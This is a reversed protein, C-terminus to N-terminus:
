PCSSSFGTLAGLRPMYVATRYLTSAPIISQTTIPSYRYYMEAILVEEGSIMTFGAPLTANAGNATGVQSTATLTGGGCYQWNVRPNATGTKTVNTVIIKAYAGAPYPEMMDEGALFLQSMVSSTLPSSSPDAQATVDAIMSVTKEMKQVILVYRTLEVSGLFLVFLITVSLAFEMAAM